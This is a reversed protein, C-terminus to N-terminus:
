WAKDWDIEFDDTLQKETELEENLSKKDVEQAFVGITPLLM